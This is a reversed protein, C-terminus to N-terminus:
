TKHCSVNHSSESLLRDSSSDAVVKGPFALPLDGVKARELALKLPQENLEGLRRFDATLRAIAQDFQKYNGEGAASGVINGAPDILVRTPWANVKYARWVTFDADNYRINSSMACSSVDFIRRTKENEYKGSSASVVLQNAYKQELEESAFSTCATSAVM